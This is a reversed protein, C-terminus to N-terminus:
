ERTKGGYRGFIRVNGKLDHNLGFHERDFRVYPPFSMSSSIIDTERTLDM